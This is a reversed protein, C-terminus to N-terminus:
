NVLDKRPTCTFLQKYHKSFHSRSAFGYHKAVEEVGELGKARRLDPRKLMHHVQQLRVTRLLDAPPMGFRDRCGDFISSRSQHLLAPLQTVEFPVDPNATQLHLAKLAVEARERRAIVPDKHETKTFLDCLELLLMEDEIADGTGKGAFIARLHNRLKRTAKSGAYTVNTKHLDEFVHEFGRENLWRRLKKRQIFVVGIQTGAALRLDVDHLTWNYGFLAPADLEVGYPRHRWCEKYPSLEIAISTKELDRAGTFAIATSIEIRVLHLMGVNVGTITGECPGTGTQLVSTGSCIRQMLVNLEVASKFPLLIM